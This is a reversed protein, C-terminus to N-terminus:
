RTENRGDDGGAEQIGESEQALAELTLELWLWRTCLSCSSGVVRTRVSCELRGEGNCPVIIYM